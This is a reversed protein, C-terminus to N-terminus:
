GEAIPAKKSSEETTAAVQPVDSARTLVYTLVSIMVLTMCAKAWVPIQPLLLIILLSLVISSGGFWKARPRIVRYSRWEIIAPGMRPHQLLWHEFRQSGKSYWYAALLFFPTTPLIPLFIGLCGVVVAAHGLTLWVWRPMTLM